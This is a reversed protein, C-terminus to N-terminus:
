KEYRLKLLKNIQLIGLEEIKIKYGKGSVEGTIDYFSNGLKFVAHDQNYYIDGQPYVTKLIMAFQLCSGKTYVEVSSPFSERILEILSLIEKHQSM